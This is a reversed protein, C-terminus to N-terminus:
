VYQIRGKIVQRLPIIAPNEPDPEFKGLPLLSQGDAALEHVSFTAGDTAIGVFDSGTVTLKENLYGALQTEFKEKRLDSKIEIVTRGLLADIRGRVVVHTHSEFEIDRSKAGLGDTLLKSLLARVKEHGPRLILESVIEQLSDDSIPM